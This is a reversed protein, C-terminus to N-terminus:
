RSGMSSYLGRLIMPVPLNLSEARIRADRLWQTEMESRRHDTTDNRNWRLQLENSVAELFAVLDPLDKIESAENPFVPNGAAAEEVFVAAAEKLRQSPGSRWARFYDNLGGWRKEDERFVRRLVEAEETPRRIRFAYDRLRSIVTPLLM